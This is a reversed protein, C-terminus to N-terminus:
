RRMSRPSALGIMSVLLAAVVTGRLTGLEMPREVLLMNGGMSAALIMQDAFLKSRAVPLLKRL